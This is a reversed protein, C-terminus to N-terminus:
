FYDNGFGRKIVDVLDGGQLPDSLVDLREAAVRGPDGDRPLLGAAGGDVVVHEGRERAPEEM